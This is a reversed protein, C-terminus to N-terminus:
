PSVHRWMRLHAIGLEDDLFVQGEAEFGHRLYFGVAPERAQCWLVGAGLDAVVACLVAAGAGTGRWQPWTAMQRLVWSPALDPRWPCVAPAILCASRVAGDADWAAYHLADPYEDGPLRDHLGLLPRLVSRRLERTLRADIRGAKM